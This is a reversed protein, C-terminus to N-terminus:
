DDDETWRWRAWGYAALGGVVMGVHGGLAGIGVGLGTIAADFETRRIWIQRDPRPQPSAIPTPGQTPAPASQPTTLTLSTTATGGTRLTGLDAPHSVRPTGPPVDTSRVIATGGFHMMAPNVRWDALQPTATNDPNRVLPKGCSPCRGHQRWSGPLVEPLEGDPPGTGVASRM